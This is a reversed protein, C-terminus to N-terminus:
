NKSFIVCSLLKILHSFYYVVVVSCPCYPYTTERKKRFFAPCTTVSKAKAGASLVAKYHNKYGSVRMQLCNFDQVTVAKQSRSLKYRSVAGTGGVFIRYRSLKGAGILSTGRCAYHEIFNTGHRCFTRGRKRQAVAPCAGGGQVTVTKQSFFRSRSPAITPYCAVGAPQSRGVVEANQSKALFM